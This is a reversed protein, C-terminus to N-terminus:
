LDQIQKVTLLLDGQGLELLSVLLGIAVEDATGNTFIIAYVHLASDATAPAIDGM